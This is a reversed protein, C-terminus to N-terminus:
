LVNFDHIKVSKVFDHRSEHWLELSISVFYYSLIRFLDNVFIRIKVVFLHFTM